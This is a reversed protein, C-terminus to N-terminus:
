SQIQATLNERLGMAYAATQLKFDNAPAREKAREKKEVRPLHLYSSLMVRFGAKLVRACDYM